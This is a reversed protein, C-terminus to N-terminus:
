RLVACNWKKAAVSRPTLKESDCAGDDNDADAWYILNRKGAL